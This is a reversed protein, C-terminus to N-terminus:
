IILNLFLHNIILAYVSKTLCVLQSKGLHSVYSDQIGEWTSTDPQM